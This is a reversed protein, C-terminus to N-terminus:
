CQRNISAQFIYAFEGNKGIYRWHWSEESVGSWESYDQTFTQEFGFKEANKLLWRYASSHDFTSDISNFDMALGTHHESYGAPSSIHYVDYPKQTKLKNTVIQKQRDVSRFISNPKLTIGDKKAAKIMEDLAPKAQKHILYKQEGQTGYGSWVLDSKRAETYKFHKIGVQYAEPHCQGYNGDYYNNNYYNDGYNRNNHYNGNEASRHETSSVVGELNKPPMGQVRNPQTHAHHPQEPPLNPPIPTTFGRQIKSGDVNEIKFEGNQLKSTKSITIKAGPVKSQSTQPSPKQNNKGGYEINLAFASLNNFCFIGFLLMYKPYIQIFNKM